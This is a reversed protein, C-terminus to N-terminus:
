ECEGDILDGNTMERSAEAAVDPDYGKRLLFQYLKQRARRPDDARLLAAKKAAADRARSRQLEPDQASAVAKEAVSKDVGRALLEQRIARPGKGASREQTRRYVEAFGADDLLGLEHAAGVAAEVSEADFGLRELYLQAERVTKRRLALYRVLRRRALLRGQEAELRRLLDEPIEMDRKLQFRVALEADLALTTGDDMHVQVQSGARTREYQLSQIRM